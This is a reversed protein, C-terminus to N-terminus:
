SVVKAASTGDPLEEVKVVHAMLDKMDDVHTILMVQRFQSALASLALMVSRKRTPDLSGFIEDLVLLNVQNTGTREAIMRSIALRLSLNAIDAEGGSFRSLPHLTGDDDISIQYDDDLEIREYKGDTMMSMVDSTIESLTPAIRGILHDKFDVLVDELLSMEELSDRQSKVREKLRRIEDLEKKSSRIDASIRELGVRADALAEAAASAADTRQDFQKMAEEYGKRKPELKSIRDSLASEESRKAKMAGRLEDLDRRTKGLQTQKEKLKVLEEHKLSLRDYSERVRKYEDMSFRVEGIARVEEAKAKLRAKARAIEGNVAEIRALAATAKALQEENHKLKRELAELMKDSAVLEARSAEISLEDEKTVSEAERLGTRLRKVLPDYADELVRECTPCVGAKGAHEIDGLRRRDDELRSLREEMRAKMEALKNSLAGRGTEAEKKKEAVSQIRERVEEAEGAERAATELRKALQSLEEEIAAVDKSLITKRDFKAKEEDLLERTKRIEIWDHEARELEPLKKLSEEAERVAAVAKSEREQMDALAKKTAKLDADATRYAEFDKALSDRRERAQGLERTRLDKTRQAEAFAREATKLSTSLEDIRSTVVVERDEGESGLLMGEAGQIQQSVSRRDERVRKIAEDIGDIRLMRLVVKKRESAPFDQLENLEKQRAFVSTFFSKHDMGLLKQVKERVARDGDALTADRTTLVAKMSLNRGGMERVVRYEIGEMEFELTAEVSDKVGAGSRRISERSTRVIEPENGFLAWAMGEIITSKGAGNLGLIGVIGDPFELKLNRFRRYNKLELYSIRM